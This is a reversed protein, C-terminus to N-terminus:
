AELSVQLLNAVFELREEVLLDKGGSSLVWVNEFVIGSPHKYEPVRRLQYRMALDELRGARSGSALPKGRYCLDYLNPAVAHDNIEVTLPCPLHENPHTINM